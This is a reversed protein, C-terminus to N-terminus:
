PCLTMGLWFAIRPNDMFFSSDSIFPSFLFILALLAFGFPCSIYTPSRGFTHFTSRCTGRISFGAKQKSVLIGPTLYSAAAIRTLREFAELSGRHFVKPKPHVTRRPRSALYGRQCILGLLNREVFLLAPWRRTWAM